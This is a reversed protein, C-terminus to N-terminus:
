APDTRGAGNDGILGLIKGRDLVFSVETLARVTGFNKSINKVELEPVGAKM